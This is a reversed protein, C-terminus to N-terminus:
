YNVLSSHVKKLASSVSPYILASGDEVAVASNIMQEGKWRETGMGAKRLEWEYAVELGLEM